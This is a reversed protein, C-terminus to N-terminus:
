RVPEDDDDYRDAYGNGNQDRDLVDVAKQESGITHSGDLDIDYRNEFAEIEAPSMRQKDHIIGNVLYMDKTFDKVEKFGVPEVYYSRDRGNDNRTIIDGVSVARAEYDSPTQADNQFKSYIDDLSAMKEGVYVPTYDGRQPEIGREKLYSLDVFSHMDDRQWIIFYDRDVEGKELEKEPMHKGPINDEIHKDHMIEKDMDGGLVKGTQDHEVPGLKYIHSGSGVLKDGLENLKRQAYNRRGEWTEYDKKDYEACPMATALFDGCNCRQAITCGMYYDPHTELMWIEADELSKVWEPAEFDKEELIKPISKDGGLEEFFIGHIHYPANRHLADFKEELEKAANLRYPTMDEEAQVIETCSNRLSIYDGFEPIRGLTLQNEDSEIVELVKYSTFEDDDLGKNKAVLATLYPTIEGEEGYIKKDMILSFDRAKIVSYM